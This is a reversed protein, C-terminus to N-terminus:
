DSDVAKAKKEIKIKETDDIKFVKNEGEIQCESLEHKHMVEILEEELHKRKAVAAAAADKQKRFAMFAESVEAPPPDPFGEGDFTTQGNTTARKRSM